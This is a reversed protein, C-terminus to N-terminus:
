LYSFTCSIFILSLKPVLSIDELPIYKSKHILSIEACGEHLIKWSEPSNQLKLDLTYYHFM